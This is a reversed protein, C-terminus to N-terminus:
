CLLATFWYYIDSEFYVPQLVSPALWYFIFYRIRNEHILFYLCSLFNYGSIGFAYCTYTGVLGHEHILRYHM